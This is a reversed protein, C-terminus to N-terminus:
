AAALERGRKLEAETMWASALFARERYCREILRLSRIGEGGPVVATEKGEVARLCNLLQAVFCQAYTAGVRGNELAEGRVSFQSGQIGIELRNAEGVKWAIWGKEFKVVYRNPLEWDRSLQVRGKLGSEFEFRGVCNIELGGMADDEYRVARPEGFWWLMVDLLHVGLDLFVGGQASKRQFFSASQAPWEFLGGETFEFGIAKGLAENAIYERMLKLAPFFRRFLGIALLQKTRRAAEIMREGEAVTAAMPKECLVGVGNEMLAIAQEAHWKAPSAVIALKPRAAFVGELSQMRQAGPFFKGLAELREASPDFLAAVRAVGLRELEVLSPAYYLEALAGCGVIAISSM